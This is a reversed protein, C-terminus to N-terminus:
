KWECLILEKKNTGDSEKEIVGQANKKDRSFGPTDKLGYLGKRCTDSKLVAYSQDDPIKDSCLITYDNPMDWRVRAIVQLYKGSVKKKMKISLCYYRFRHVAPITTSGSSHEFAVCEADPPCTYDLKKKLDAKTLAKCPKKTDDNFPTGQVWAGVSTICANVRSAFRVSSNYLEKKEVDLIYGQYQVVAISSLISLLGLGILIELLTFGSKSM